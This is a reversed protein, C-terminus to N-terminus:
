KDHDLASSVSSEISAGQADLQIVIYMDTIVQQNLGIIKECIPEFVSVEFPLRFLQANNTTDRAILNAPQPVDFTLESAQVIGPSSLIIDGESLELYNAGTM